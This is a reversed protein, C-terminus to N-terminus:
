RRLDGQLRGWSGPDGGPTLISTGWREVALDALDKREWLEAVISDASIVRAGQSAWAFSLISKGAGVDGTLGIVLM